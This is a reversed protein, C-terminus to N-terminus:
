KRPSIKELLADLETEPLRGLKTLEVKGGPGLVVTYPLALRSDGLQRALDLGENEALLLPYSVPIQQRFRTVNAPTDLAIGVFQVGRAGFKDQLRSFAPMEERCPSCWTAWFNLVLLKGRWQSLARPVGDSDSLQLAFLRAIAAEAVPAPGTARLRWQVGFYAGSAVAAFLLVTISFRWRLTM